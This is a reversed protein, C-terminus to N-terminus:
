TGEKRCIVALKLAWNKLEEGETSTDTTYHALYECMMALSELMETDFKGPKNSSAKPKPPFGLAGPPPPTPLGSLQQIHQLAPPMVPPHPSPYWASGPPPPPPPLPIDPYVPNSSWADYSVPVPQYQQHSTATYNASNQHHNQSFPTKPYVPQFHPGPQTEPNSTANTGPMFLGSPESTHPTQMNAPPMPSSAIQGSHGSSAHALTMLPSQAVTGPALYYPGSNPPAYVMPPPVFPSHPILVNSPGPSPLSSHFKSIASHHKKVSEEMMKMDSSLSSHNAPPMGIDGFPSLPSSLFSEEDDTDWGLDDVPFGSRNLSVPQPVPEKKALEQLIMQPPNHKIIDITSNKKTLGRAVWVSMTKIIQSANQEFHKKVVESWLNEKSFWGQMATQLTMSRIQKNYNQSEVTGRHNDRGPENCWPEDCLIMSQISLLLQLLTSHEAQWPQGQWTGLLSLCIKGDPYLNPNFGTGNESITRFHAKPAENPYESPCLIDFEFLGNEYPTGQPGVIIAKLVDPRSSGHRVYIGPPVQTRLQSIESVLRKMRGKFPNAIKQAGSFFYHSDLITEDPVDEVCHAKHWDVMQAERDEPEIATFLQSNAKLFGALDAIEPCLALAVTDVDYSDDSHLQVANNQKLYADAQIGLVQIMRALPQLKERALEENNTHTPATFTMPLLTEAEQYDLREEFVIQALSYHSILARIVAFVSDYVNKRKSIIQISDNRLLAALQNLITSRRLMEVIEIPPQQDFSTDADMSPLLKALVALHIAVPVDSPDEDVFKILAKLKGRRRGPLNPVGYHDGGYGIGNSSSSAKPTQATQDKKTSKRSKSTLITEHCLLGWLVFLRGKDCCWILSMGDPLKTEKANSCQTGCGACILGKNKGCRSCSVLSSVLKSTFWQKTINQIWDQGQNSCLRTRCRTCQLSMMRRGFLSIVEGSNTQSEHSASSQHERDFQAQLEQALTYDDHDKTVGTDTKIKKPSQLRSSQAINRAEADFRAQLQIAVQLDDTGDLDMLDPDDMTLDIVVKSASSKVQGAMGSSTHHTFSKASTGNITSASAQHDLHNHSLKRKLKSMLSKLFKM